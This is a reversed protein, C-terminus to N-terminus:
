PNGQRRFESPSVGQWRTFAQSFSRRDAFGLREAINEISEPSHKLWDQALRHRIQNVIGSHQHGEERLRRQLTRPHLGLDAALADIGQGLLAPQRLLRAQIQTSLSHPEGRATDGGTAQAARQAMQTALTELQEAVRRAAAAHLAPLAGRLPRDLVSRDFWIANVDQGYRMPLGLANAWDPSGPPRPHSFTIEGQELPGGLMLRAFKCFTVFVSEAFHWTVAPTADDRTFKLLLRAQHGHEHLALSMVPNILSPLWSLAPTAARLSPSTTIFTEVDSLYEFAFSEGLVQPFHLHPDQRRCEEVCRQMLHLMADVTITSDTPHLHTFDLGVEQFLPEIQFGCLAASRVWNTVTVFPIPTDPSHL